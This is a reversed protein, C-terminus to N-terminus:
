IFVMVTTKPMIKMINKNTKLDTLKDMNAKIGFVKGDSKMKPMIPKALIGSSKIVIVMEAMAMPMPTSIGNVINVSELIFEFFITVIRFGHITGM